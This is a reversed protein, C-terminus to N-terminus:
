YYTETPYNDKDPQDTSLDTLSKKITKVALSPGLGSLAAGDRPLNYLALSASCSLSPSGSYFGACM